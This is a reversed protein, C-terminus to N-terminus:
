NLEKARGRLILKGLLLLLSLSLILSIAGIIILWFWFVDNWKNQYFDIASILRPNIDLNQSIMEKETLNEKLENTKTDYSFYNNQRTKGIIKNNNQQILSIESIVTKGNKEIDGYEVMDIFLLRYNNSLPVYWTDGIGVDVNKVRSIIILGFLGFFYLAYFLVFPSIGAFVIKRTRKIKNSIFYTIASTFVSIISCLIFILFLHAIIVIGIGM